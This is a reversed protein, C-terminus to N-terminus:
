NGKILATAQGALTTIETIQQALSNADSVTVAERALVLYGTCAGSAGNPCDLIQLLIAKAQAKRDAPLAPEAAIYTQQAANFIAEAAYESKALALQTSPSPTVASGPALACGTLGIVALIPIVAIRNM